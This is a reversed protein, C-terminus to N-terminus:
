RQSFLMLTNTHYGNVNFRCYLVVVMCNNCCRAAPCVSSFLVSQVSNLPYLIYVPRPRPSRRRRGSDKESKKRRRRRRRRRVM